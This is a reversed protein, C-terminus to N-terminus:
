IKSMSSVTRVFPSAGVPVRSLISGLMIIIVNDFASRKGFTRIGALRLLVLAIIFTVVSRCSMQLADLDKGEGFFVKIWDMAPLKYTDEKM